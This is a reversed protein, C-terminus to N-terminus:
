GGRPRKAPAPAAPQAARERLGRATEGLEELRRAAEQLQAALREAEHRLDRERAELIRAADPRPTELLVRAGVEVLVRQGESVQGKLYAGGGLPLFADKKEKPLAGLSQLAAKHEEALGQVALLRRQLEEALGRQYNAEAVLRNMQEQAGDAM